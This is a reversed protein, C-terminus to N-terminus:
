GREFSKTFINFLKVGCLFCVFFLLMVLLTNGDDTSITNTEGAYIRNCAFDPIVPFCLLAPLLYRSM